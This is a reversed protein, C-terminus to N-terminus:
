EDDWRKTPTKLRIHVTGGRVSVQVSRRAFALLLGHIFASDKMPTPDVEIWREDAEILTDIVQDYRGTYGGFKGGRKISPPGDSQSIIFNNAM